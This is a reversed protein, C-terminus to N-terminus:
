DMHLQIDQFVVTKEDTHWRVQAQNVTAKSITFGLLRSASLEAVPGSTDNLLWKDREAVLCSNLSRARGRNVLDLCHLLVFLQCDYIIQSLFSTYNNIDKWTKKSCDWALVAAFSVMASDFARRELPQQILSVALNLM